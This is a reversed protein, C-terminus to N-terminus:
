MKGRRLISVLLWFGMLGAVLFGGLGIIPIENWTPPIGSLVVLASGVILSALVIAFAIRNSIREHTALMIDLGLHEFIIKARGSKVQRLIEGLEGPTKKLLHLFEAGSGIMDGAVRRPHIRELHIKRIFPAAERAADFDPDLTRGLAEVTSLAKLMLFLDPPVRLRHRSATNLAQQLIKGIELEKLPRYLHQDIFDAVDRELSHRDPKEDWRTLALLADTTRAEDRKVAHMVLDVFNERTQRDVRGMMGFDLYCIIDNPLIFVNGPHPDAHFFGHVFIQEMILNFGRRAVLQRDIRERELRPLDSGKIGDVYEMTLVRKSTLERHVKPVYITQDGVFQSAFREMHAAEITYDLEKELTRAFEQVVKTPRHIDWGELHKEMLTALHLMIEFDIEITTRIDPRQVKVVVDENNALRARHVQGLSASAQPTEEFDLFIKELRSGLEKEITEKANQYSFPLVDDQLKGLENIFEVPLLDPRTSLIQGLKVFTPGLEELAMKVRMARSLSEIREHRKRSIMRLGLDLYQEIKLVDLVDGFGYKFLITVIQRYRQVHRYTRGIIGIKRIM